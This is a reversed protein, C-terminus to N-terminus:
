RRGSEGSLFRILPPDLSRKSIVCAAYDSDYQIVVTENRTRLAVWRLTFLIATLEGVNNTHCTAGVCSPALANLATPRCFDLLHNISQRAICPGWGASSDTASGDTAIVFPLGLILRCTSSQRKPRISM